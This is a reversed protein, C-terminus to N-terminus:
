LEAKSESPPDVIEITKIRTLEPFDADLYVNGRSVIQDQRPGKGSPAGEGIKFILDLAEPHRVVEAFPIFDRDLVESGDGFNLFLQTTRTNPGSTAFALTGRVNSKGVAPDDNIRKQEWTSHTAPDGNIGFQAIWINYMGDLVRFFRNDDYFKQEVLEKFRAAGLPAWEPVVRLTISSDEPVDKGSIIM